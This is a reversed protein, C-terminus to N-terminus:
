LPAENLMMFMTIVKKKETKVSNLVLFQKLFSEGGCFCGSRRLLWMPSSQDACDSNGVEDIFNFV